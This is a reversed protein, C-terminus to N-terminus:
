KRKEVDSSDRVADVSRGTTWQKVSSAVVDSTWAHMVLRSCGEVHQVVDDGVIQHTAELRGLVSDSNSPSPCEAIRGCRM